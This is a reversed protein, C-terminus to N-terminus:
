RYGSRIDWKGDRRESAAFQVERLILLGARSDRALQELRLFRLANPKRPDSITKPTIAFIRLIM